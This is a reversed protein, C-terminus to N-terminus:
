HEKVLLFIIVVSLFLHYCGILGEKKCFIVGQWVSLPFLYDHIM